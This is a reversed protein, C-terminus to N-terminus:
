LGAWLESYYWTFHVRILTVKVEQDDGWLVCIKDESDDIDSKNDAVIDLEQNDNKVNGLFIVTLDEACPLANGEFGEYTAPNSSPATWAASWLIHSM